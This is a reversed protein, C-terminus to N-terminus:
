KEVLFILERSRPSRMATPISLVCRSARGPKSGGGKIPYVGYVGDKENFWWPGDRRFRLRARGSFCRRIILRMMNIIYIGLLLGESM